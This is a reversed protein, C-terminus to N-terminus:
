IGYMRLCLPGCAMCWGCEACPECSPVLLAPIGGFMVPQNKWRCTRCRSRIAWVKNAQSCSSSSCHLGMSRCETPDHPYFPSGLTFLPIYCVRIRTGFCRWTRNTRFLNADHNIFNIIILRLINPALLLMIYWRNRGNTVNHNSNINGDIVYYALLLMIHDGFIARSVSRVRGCRRLVPGLGERIQTWNLHIPPKRVHLIGVLHITSQKRDHFIGISDLFPHSIATGWSPFRGIIDKQYSYLPRNPIGDTM